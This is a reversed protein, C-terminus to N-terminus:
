AALEEDDLEVGDAWGVRLVTYLVAALLVVAVGALGLWVQLLDVVSDM